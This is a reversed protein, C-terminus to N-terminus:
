IQDDWETLTVGAERELKNIHVRYELERKKQVNHLEEERKQVVVPDHPDIVQDARFYVTRAVTISLFIVVLATQYAPWLFMMSITQNRVSERTSTENYNYSCRRAARWARAAHLKAMAQGIALYAIVSFIAILWEIM